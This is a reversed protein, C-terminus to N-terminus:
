TALLESFLIRSADRTSANVAIVPKDVDSRGPTVDADTVVLM